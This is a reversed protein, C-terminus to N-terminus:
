LHFNSAFRQIKQKYYINIIKQYRHNKRTFPLQKLHYSHHISLLVKKARKKLIRVRDISILDIDNAENISLSQVNEDDEPITACSKTTGNEFSTLRSDPTGLLTM